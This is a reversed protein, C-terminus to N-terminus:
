HTGRGRRDDEPGDPRRPVGACPVDEDDGVLIVPRAVQVLSETEILDSAGPVEELRGIAASADDSLTPTTADVPQAPPLGGATLWNVGLAEGTDVQVSSPRLLDGTRVRGIARAAIAADIATTTTAAAGATPTLPKSSSAGAPYSM